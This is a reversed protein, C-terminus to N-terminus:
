VQITFVTASGPLSKVSIQGKHQDIINRCISLGLGSGNAKTTFYPVFVNGTDEPKIGSGNDTITIKVVQKPSRGVRILIVPNKVNTLAEISNLILNIFVQEFLAQDVTVEL